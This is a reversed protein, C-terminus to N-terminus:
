APVQQIASARELALLDPIVYRRGETRVLGRAALASLSKNVAERSAGVMRGLDEQTLPLALRVARGHSVGHRYALECLRRSVRTPVDHALAEELAIATRHLRSAILRILETATEPNCHVVAALRPVSLVTVSAGGVARADVPSTGAGLLAVEGFVDGVGLVAVVVERGSATVASLRVAGSRVLFLCTAPEGQRVITQGHAFTRSPSDALDLFRSEV